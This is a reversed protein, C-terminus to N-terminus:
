GTRAMQAIGEADHVDSKDVRASLVGNAHRACICEIPVDRAVM